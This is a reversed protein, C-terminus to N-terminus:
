IIQTDQWRKALDEQAKEEKVVKVMTNETMKTIHENEEQRRTINDGPKIGCQKRSIVIRNDTM